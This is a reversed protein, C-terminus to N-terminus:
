LRDMEQPCTWSFMDMSHVPKPCTWLVQGNGTWFRDMKPHVHGNYGTWKRRHVHGFGTWFMDLVQGVQGFGTWKRDMSMDMEASKKKSMDM